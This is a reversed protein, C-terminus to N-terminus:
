IFSMGHIGEMMICTLKVCLLNIDCVCNRVNVGFPYCFKFGNIM